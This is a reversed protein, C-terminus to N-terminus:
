RNPHNVIIHFMKARITNSDVVLKMFALTERISANNTVPTFIPFVRQSIEDGTMEKLRKMIPVYLKVDKPSKLPDALLLKTYKEMLIDSNM